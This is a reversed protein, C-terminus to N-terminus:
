FPVDSDLDIDDNEGPDNTDDDIIDPPLFEDFDDDATDATSSTSDNVNLFSQLTDLLGKHGIDLSITITLMAKGTNSSIPPSSQLLATSEALSYSQGKGDENAELAIAGSSLLSGLYQRLKEVGGSQNFFAISRKIDTLTAKGGKRRIADLIKVAVNDVTFSMSM